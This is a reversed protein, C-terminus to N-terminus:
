GASALTRPQNSGQHSPSAVPRPASGECYRLTGDRQMGPASLKAYEAPPLNGLGSHPELSPSVPPAAVIGEIGIPSTPEERAFLIEHLREGVQHRVSRARTGLKALRPRTPEQTRLSASTM